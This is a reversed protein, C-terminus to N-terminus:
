SSPALAAAHNAIFAKITDAVVDDSEGMRSAITGHDRGEVELYQIDTHGAAKMAAVFYRNEEARAPLDNDGAICLFPATDRTAYFAPAAEDIIPQTRPIGREGRVTSHTVMQGAVPIFGALMSPKMGHQKLYRADMGVMSTLYGGASHGSVFVKHRDGGRDAVHRYVHSVAAAADDIYAPYHAKPSLRYNVSVVAIGESAFRKALSVAIDDTKSGNQLGGGHFWVITPFGVAGNPLYWDLTCRAREYPTEADPKYPQDSVRRFDGSADASRVDSSQALVVPAAATWVIFGVFALRFIM